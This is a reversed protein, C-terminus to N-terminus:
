QLRYINAILDYLQGIPALINIPSPLSGWTESRRKYFRNPWWLVHPLTRRRDALCGELNLFVSLFFCRYCFMIAAMISHWEMCSNNRKCIRFCIRFSANGNAIHHFPSRIAFPRILLRYPHCWAISSPNAVFFQLLYWLVSVCCTLFIVYFEQTRRFKAYPFSVTM